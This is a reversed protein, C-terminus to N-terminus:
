FLGGMHLLRPTLLSLQGYAPAHALLDQARNWTVNAPLTMCLRAQISLWTPFYTKVMNILPGVGAARTRVM